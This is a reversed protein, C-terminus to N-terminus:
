ISSVVILLGDDALSPGVNFEPKTAKLVIPDSGSSILFGTAKHNKM